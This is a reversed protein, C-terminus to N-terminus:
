ISSFLCFFCCTLFYIRFGVLPSSSSSFVYSRKGQCLAVRRGQGGGSSDWDGGRIHETPSLFKLPFFFSAVVSFPRVDAEPKEYVLLCGRGQDLVGYFVKDLIM